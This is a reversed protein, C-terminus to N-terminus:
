LYFLTYLTNQSLLDNAVDQLKDATTQAVKAFTDQWAPAEGYYMMQKAMALVSNEQNEASIAMQGHLQTLARRLQLPSLKEERLRKLEALVLEMCQDRNAPETAFYISWYGTDSLPVYQSEITYVLGKQERLSLNLRSNLSGGGLINNLLYMALQDPHGLPYAKGGLMVHTQHTHRRFSCEQPASHGAINAFASRQPFEESRAGLSGFEREAMRFIQEPRINGQSFMVMKDPSFSNVWELPYQPNSAITKLTKRKGLIPQALPHGSFILSEFDDYILESPSDEYSEIEDLIVGLEKDTERKPFTPRLVMDALLRLTQRYHAVPTAAYFTTEEKTTFANIEGGIGEISNIIQRATLDHGSPTRCGKFVCHEVYHALGNLRPQEDRTGVGISIGVYAVESATMRHVIKLGNPLIKYFTTNNEQM